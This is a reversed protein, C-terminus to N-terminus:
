CIKSRDSFFHSTFNQRFLAAAVDADDDTHRGATNSGARTGHQIGQRLFDGLRAKGILHADCLGATDTDTLILGHDLDQLCAFFFNCINFHGSFFRFLDNFLVELAAANDLLEHVAFAALRDARQLVGREICLLLANRQAVAARDIGFVNVLIDRHVTIGRQVLHEVLHRGLFDDLDDGIGAKAAAAAGAEGGTFLPIECRQIFGVLLVHDAVRVLAVGARKHVTGNQFAIGVADHFGHGDATVGDARGLTVNVHTRFIGDGDRMQLLRDVVGAAVAQQALIDEAAAKIKVQM